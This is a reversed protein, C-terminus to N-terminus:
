SDSWSDEDDDEDSGALAQRIANAKELMAAVKLNTRPGQISPRPVAAPKLNFSKARIQELLSDREDVKPGIQPRARETVKRLTRKDHSAVAEILPDRPRPLKVSPNGNLKGDVSAPAIADSYSLWETEEKSTQSPYELQEDGMTQPLVFTKPHDGESNQCTGQLKNQELAPEPALHDLPQILEGQLSAPAHRSTTDEVTRVFTKPPNVIEEESNQRAHQFKNDELDPEPALHDLSPILQGDLSVPAHGHRSTVDEVTQVPLFLNLSPLVMEEESALLGHDPREGCSSQRLLPSLDQTGEPPLFNQHSNEGNVKTPMQLLISSPQVLNGSFYESSHLKEDVVMSLPLVHKGPQATEGELAPSVLHDKVDAIPPPIPPFLALSHQFKGMRWQMPPLPPMGDPNVQTAEPLLGFRPFPVESPDVAPKSSELKKGASQLPFESVLPESSFDKPCSRSSADFCSEQEIRNSTHIQTSQLNSPNLRAEDAHLYEVSIDDAQVDLVQESPVGPEPFYHSPSSVLRESNEGLHIQHPAVQSNLDQNIQKSSTLHLSDQYQEALWSDPVDNLLESNSHGYAGTIGPNSDLDTLAAALQNVEKPADSEIDYEPPVAKNIELDRRLTEQLNLINRGPSEILDLSPCIVNNVDDVEDDCAATSVLHTAPVSETVLDDLSLHDKPDPYNPHGFPFDDESGAGSAAAAAVAVPEAQVTEPISDDSILLDKPVLCNQNNSPIDDESNAGTAAGVAVTEAKVTETVMDSSLIHDGLGPYNPHDSSFQLPISTRGVTDENGTSGHTEDGDSAGSVGELKMKEGSSSVHMESIDLELQPGGGTIESSWQETLTLTQPMDAVPTSNQLNFGNEPVNDDIKSVICVPKVDADCAISAPSRDPLSGSLTSGLLQDEAPSTIPKPSDIKGHVLMETSNDNGCETQLVENVFNDSSEKEPALDPANSMLQLVDSLFNPNGGYSEDVPHSQAQASVRFFDDDTWSSVNSMDSSGKKPDLDSVNSLHLLADSFVNPDAGDLKSELHSADSLKDGLDTENDVANSFETGPKIHDCSTGDLEPEVVSVEKLSKGCDVPPLMVNLDKPSSTCSAEVFESRYGHVDTVDICTDNPVVHEHSKPKSEENISLHNSPVDVIEDVCIDICPFVEVAGDGNSPSNEALNSIDSNSISSRGKKCLSSGDGSPTSDGNSQSDSFQAGLEQNEENADSDTGHKKVNLFGMKNKPKNEIDTELESEMTNLADMYNDSTVDDSHYGDVNGEIKSEGDVQVEREDPVKYISSIKDTEGEPNSEPVKLIAGDIAEEVVEDMFPRQVKEQGRPSSSKRQLSEKSPSVTSIELIELGPEHGSNSALKLSPPSVCIEHVVEQEPSHTELFQEMYSRGTKSDFPSENLQRKKLKVLRAPGDTGNEVRDVLFLQHLKAHTAPLVEPTEGNRWRYGKKKGKRIKKERQVQLKVAGSSASEAKFFSPDTYRKLCAGAGAVDFKDLLFLRPPGRCEEYSDMVFRPLDGRTILNQDAHLNPHWDVGANYFFSSHNTQSLFAREILPFEAELQQVRVMLGHGRAATVMVEEHLDHFIEAAFEALDGLQRLVGVLGAMAVGELLAEPDDKDAARFLEPDALSYQNRVQYRTLPM